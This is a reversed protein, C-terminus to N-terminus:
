LFISPAAAISAKRNRASLPYTAHAARAGMCLAQRCASHEGFWFVLANANAWQEVCVCLHAACLCSLMDGSKGCMGQRCGLGKKGSLRQMCLCNFTGQTQTLFVHVGEDAPLLFGALACGICVGRLRVCKCVEVEVCRGNRLEGQNRRMYVGLMHTANVAQGCHARM